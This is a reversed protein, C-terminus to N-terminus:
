NLDLLVFEQLEGAPRVVQSLPVSNLYELQRREAEAFVHRLGCAPQITCVGEISVCDLLALSGEFDEVVQGISISEASRALEIGGGVGRVSRIYGQQALRRVAKAVHDKSIRFFEAVERVQHRGPRGALYILTRLAYDTQLSLRM